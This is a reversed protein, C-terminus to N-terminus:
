LKVAAGPRGDGLEPAVGVARSEFTENVAKEAAAQLPADRWFRDDGCHKGEAAMPLVVATSSIGHVLTTSSKGILGEHSPSSYM